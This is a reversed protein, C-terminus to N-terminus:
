GWNAASNHIGVGSAHVGANDAFRHTFDPTAARGPIVEPTVNQFAATAQKLHEYGQELTSYDVFGEGKPLVLFESVLSSFVIDVFREPDSQIEAFSAEFPHM